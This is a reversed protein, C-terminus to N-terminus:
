IKMSRKFDYVPEKQAQSNEFIEEHIDQEIKSYYDKFQIQSQYKNLGEIM